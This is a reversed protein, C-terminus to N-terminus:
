GEDLNMIQKVSHKDIYYQIIKGVGDKLHKHTTSRSISLADAMEQITVGRRASSFYGMEYAIKIVEKQRQTLINHGKTVRNIEVVKWKGVEKLKNYAEKLQALDPALVTYVKNGNEVRIPPKIFCFSEEFARIGTTDRIVALFDLTTKTKELIQIFITSEHDEMIRFYKGADRDPDAIRVLFLADDENLIIYALIDMKLEGDRTAVALSCTHQEVRVTALYM